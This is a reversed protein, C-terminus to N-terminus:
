SVSSHKSFYLVDLCQLSCSVNRLWPMAARAYPKQHSLHLTGPGLHDGSVFMAHKSMLQQKYNHM